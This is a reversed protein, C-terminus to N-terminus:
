VTFREYHFDKFKSCATGDLLARAYDTAHFSALTVGSHCLAVAAGSETAVYVPFGDPTMVRLASWHRVLKANKLAPLIRLAKDAMKAAGETTTALSFGVDENTVGIMVTGDRTQRLGSAPLPLLPELRESVLLQGRQPHVPAELGVMPALQASGLGAAIVVKKAQFQNEACHIVFGGQALPEIRQAESNTELRGGGNIFATQLASLLRLPNVAGDKAFYSAGFVDKGLLLHPFRGKLEERGLMQPAEVNFDSGLQAFWQELVVKRSLFEDKSLCYVLGGQQQYECKVGSDAELQAVFEPWGDIARLTLQQYAPANLGKGQSWVLGFNAKAARYDSDRGDLMLVNAHGYKNLGYAIAAGTM